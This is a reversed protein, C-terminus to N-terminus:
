SQQTNGGLMEIEAELAKCACEIEYTKSVLGGWKTELEYLEAGTAEQETKRQWNIEQVTDNLAQLDKQCTEEIRKLDLVHQKWLQPGYQAFLEVNDIRNKMHVLQAQANEVASTWAAVDNASSKDPKPINLRSMDMSKMKKNKKIRTMEAELFASNLTNLEPMPPLHALYKEFDPVFTHKEAEVMAQVAEKVGPYEYDKDAYPLADINKPPPRLVPQTSGGDASDEVAVLEMSSMAPM